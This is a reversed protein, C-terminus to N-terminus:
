NGGKSKKKYSANKQRFITLIHNVLVSESVGKFEAAQALFEKNVPTIRSYLIDTRKEPLVTAEQMYTEKKAKVPLKKKIAKKM